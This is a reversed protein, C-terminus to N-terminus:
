VGKAVLSRLLTMNEIDEHLDESKDTELIKPIDAFRPDNMLHRFAGLGMMGKGIHEHRDVRSGFGKQSDNVHVAALRAFGLVHDFERWADEWGADTHIAYGAAYLHCTDACVAVRSPQELLDIIRRLHDFRFGLATGQGATTELIILSQFGRTNGLISNLSEAIRRVGAAEGRGVHSGPHVIVGLIGFLECRQLEDQLATRSRELVRPDDACLNILYAAHAVVPTITSKASANKYNEIDRQAVPPGAWRNNNKVFVQMTTCGCRMGRDFATHVGGSISMHSGLLLRQTMIALYLLSGHCVVVWGQM